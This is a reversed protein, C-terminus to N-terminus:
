AVELVQFWASQKFGHQDTKPRLWADDLTIPGMHGMACLTAKRQVMWLWLAFIEHKEYGEYGILEDFIM